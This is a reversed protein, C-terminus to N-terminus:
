AFIKFILFLQKIKSDKDSWKNMIKIVEKTCNQEDAQILIEDEEKLSAYLQDLLRELEKHENCVTIAYTINM